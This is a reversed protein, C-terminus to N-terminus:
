KNGFMECVNGSSQFKSIQQSINVFNIQFKALIRNLGHRRIVKGEGSGVTEPAAATEDAGSSRTPM